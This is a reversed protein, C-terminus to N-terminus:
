QETGEFEITVTQLEGDVEQIAPAARAPTDFELPNITFYGVWTRDNHDIVRVKSSHYSLYFARLELAKPRFLRFTWTMKRRGGKTKVYTRLTGDTAYKASVSSTLAETDSFDPNPLLSITQIKPYPAALEIM